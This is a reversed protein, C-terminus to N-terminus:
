ASQRKVHFALSRFRRTERSVSRWFGGSVVGKVGRSQSCVETLRRVDPLDSFVIACRPCSGINPDAM